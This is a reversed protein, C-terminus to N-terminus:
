ASPKERSLAYLILEVRTSVGLKEFIRYVYNRISHETVQLRLAIDRNKMGDVVLGVVDEERRTLLPTGDPGCFQHPKAHHGLACLLHELDENAAWIQGEHVSRICKSLAKSSHSRYFVGRAGDRFARVVRDPTSSKLLMVPATDPHSNRLKRLVEFGAQPGDQLEESILAVHPNSGGLRSLINQTTGTLTQILFGNRGRSFLNTLLEATMNDPALIDVRLVTRARHPSLSRTM